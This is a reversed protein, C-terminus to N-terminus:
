CTFEILGTLLAIVIGVFAGVVLGSVILVFRLLFQMRRLYKSAEIV